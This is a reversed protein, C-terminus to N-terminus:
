NSGTPCRTWVPNDGVPWERDVADPRLPGARLNPPPTFRHRSGVIGVPLGAIDVLGDQARFVAATERDKRGEVIRGQRTVALVVFKQGRSILVPVCRDKSRGANPRM